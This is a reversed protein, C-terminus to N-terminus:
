CRFDAACTKKSPTEGFHRKFDPDTQYTAADEDWFKDIRESDADILSAFMRLNGMTVAVLTRASGYLGDDILTKIASIDIILRNFFLIVVQNYEDQKDKPFESEQFRHAIVKLLSLSADLSNM